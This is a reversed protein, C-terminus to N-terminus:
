EGGSSKPGYACVKPCPCLGLDILKHCSWMLLDRSKAYEIQYRTRAEDFDNAISFVSVIDDVSWGHRILFIALNLRAYHDLEHTKGLEALWHSVCPPLVFGKKRKKIVTHATRKYTRGYSRIIDIIMQRIPRCNRRDVRIRRARPKRAMEIINHLTETPDVPYCYLNRKSNITYPIRSVRRWDGVVRTDILDAIGIERLLRICVSRFSLFRPLFVPEFDLFVHFGKGGSFYVRLRGIDVGAVELKGLVKVLKDHAKGLDKDDIDIFITDVMQKEIQEDSYVAVFVDKKIREVLFYYALENSVQIRTLLPENGESYAYPIAASRPFLACYDTPHLHSYLARKLLPKM